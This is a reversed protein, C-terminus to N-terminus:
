RAAAVVPAALDRLNAAAWPLGHRGAWWAEALRGPAPPLPAPPVRGVPWGTDALVRAAAAAILGHAAATPHVRDVAWARRLRLAPVRALDLVLVDGGDGRRAEEAAADVARNVAATRVSAVRRLPPPLVLHQAPDHLRGLLVTTGARRLARVVARLHEGVAAPDYAGRAVDNLGILVTALHPEAALAAPLQHERLAQVRCGAVALPLLEADPLAAALRAPWTGELPVRLGVGEGCSTSDGLAAVRLTM